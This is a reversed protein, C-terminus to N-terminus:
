FLVGGLCGMCLIQCYSTVMEILRSGVWRGSHSVDMAVLITATEYHYTLLWALFSNFATGVLGVRALGRYLRTQRSKQRKWMQSWYRMISLGVGQAIGMLVWSREGHWLGCFTFTIMFAWFYHWRRRVLPTFIYDRLWESLTIHWRRWFETINVALWPYNFNEPLVFGMLRAIGISLDAYGSMWLYFYMPALYARLLFQSTTYQWPDKFFSELPMNEMLWALIMLRVIGTAIRQFATGFRRNAALNGHLQEKFDAYRQIPGMRLTPAFLMYTLFERLNPLPMRRNATDNLLHLSRLFLYALGAWQLYFRIPEAVTPLWPPQPWMLLVAYSALLISVAIWYRRPHIGACIILYSALAAAAVTLTFAHGVTILTLLLSTTILYASRWPRPVIWFVPVFVLYVMVGLPGRPLDFNGPGTFWHLWGEPRIDFHHIKALIL